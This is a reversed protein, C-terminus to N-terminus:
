RAVASGPRSKRAPATVQRRSSLPQGDGGLMHSHHELTLDMRGHDHTWASKPRQPKNQSNKGRSVASSPRLKKIPAQSRNGQHKDVYGVTFTAPKNGASNYFRVTTDDRGKYVRGDAGYLPLEQGREVLMSPTSSERLPHQPAISHDGLCTAQHFMSTMPGHQTQLVQDCSLCRFHIKGIAAESMQM